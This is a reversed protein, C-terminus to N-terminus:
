GSDVGVGRHRDPPIGFPQMGVTCFNTLKRSGPTQEAIRLCNERFLARYDSGDRLWIMLEIGNIEREDNYSIVKGADRRDM